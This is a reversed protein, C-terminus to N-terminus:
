ILIFLWCFAKNNHQENDKSIAINPPILELSQMSFPLQELNNASAKDTLPINVFLM